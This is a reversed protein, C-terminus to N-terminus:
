SAECRGKYEAYGTDKVASYLLDEPFIPSRYLFDLHKHYHCNANALWVNGM